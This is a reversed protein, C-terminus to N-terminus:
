LAKNSALTVVSDDPTIGIKDGISKVVKRFGDKGYNVGNLRSLPDPLMSVSFGKGCIPIIDAGTRWSAGVEFWVWPRDLSAKTTIVLTILDDEDDLFTTISKLWDDGALLDSSLFIEHGQGFVITLAKKINEALANDGSFHSIFIRMKKMDCFWQNGQNWILRM